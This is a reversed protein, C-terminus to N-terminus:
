DQQQVVSKQQQNQHIAKFRCTLRSIGNSLGSGYRYACISTYLIAEIEFLLDRDPGYSIWHFLKPLVRYYVGRLYRLDENNSIEITAKDFAKLFDRERRFTHFYGGRILTPKKRPQSQEGSYEPSPPIDERPARKVCYHKAHRWCDRRKKRRRKRSDRPDAPSSIGGLLAM